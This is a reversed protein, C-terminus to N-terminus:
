RPFLFRTKKVDEDRCLLVVRSQTHEDTIIYGTKEALSQAFTRIEEHIPMDGLELGREKERAGGVFMFSKVEVFHPSAIEIQKAYGDADLMNLGKVLTMRLVKRTKISPFLSLTTQVREWGDKLFPRATKKYVEKNPAIMSTYLQTPLKKLGELREPLTGNSVLFTTMNRKHFESIFDDIFPYFFPEGVLSIAAHLPTRAEKVRGKDAKDSGGYGSVIRMQERILGDVIQKPEEWEFNQPPAGWEERPATRWCFLCAHNCFTLTPTCQLCRHSRIGYFRNKYCQGKGNISDRLWKCAKVASHKGVIHYGQKSLLTATKESVM